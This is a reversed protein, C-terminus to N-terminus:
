VNDPRMIETTNLNSSWPFPDPEGTGFLQVMVDGTGATPRVPLLESHQAMSSVSPKALETEILKQLFHIAKELDTIGNKDKWRTIYKIASGELYGLNNAIIYTWPQIENKLYHAGGIQTSNINNQM